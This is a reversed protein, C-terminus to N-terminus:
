DETGGLIEGEDGVQDLNVVLKKSIGAREMTVGYLRDTITMTRKNHTIVLFQTTEAFEQIVSAFRDVNAEDLPADVEDLICFPSPRYQFLGMVLALTTLAKQGGSLLSLSNLELHPPKAMIEIGAELIDVDEEVHIDARGGGFMKRFLVQFNERVKEIADALKDRSERNIKRILDMLQERSKGLDGEQDDYEGLREELEDLREISTMNVSGLNNIKRQLDEVDRALADWDTEEEGDVTTATGIESDSETQTGDEGSTDRAEIDLADPNVIDPFEPAEPEPVPETLDVHYEELIREQLATMQLTLSNEELRLESLKKELSTAESRASAASKRATQFATDTQVKAAELEEVRAKWTTEEELLAALQEKKQNQNAVSTARREELNEIRSVAGEMETRSMAVDRNARGFKHSVAEKREVSSAQDVRLNSLTAGMEEKRVKYKQIDEGRATVEQELSERLLEIEEVLGILQKERSALKELRDEVDQRETQNYRIEDEVVRLRKRQEQLKAEKENLKISKEYIQTRLTKLRDTSEELAGRQNAVRGTQEELSRRAVDLEAAINSLEAKRGLISRGGAAGGGFMEGAGTIVVGDLTVLIIDFHVHPRLQEAVERDKVILANGFCHNMVARLAEDCRVVDIAPGIIGPGTPLPRIRPRTAVDIPVFRATGKGADQLVEMGEWADFQTETIVLDPNGGLLAEIAVVHEADVDALNALTGVMGSLNGEAILWKVGSGYGDLQAELEDLIEKRSVLKDRLERAQDFERVLQELESKFRQERDSEVKVTSELSEIEASLQSHEASLSKCQMDLITFENQHNEGERVIDGHQRKLEEQKAESGTLENSYQQRKHLADMAQSKKEEIEREMNRVDEDYARLTVEGDAIATVIRDLERNVEEMEANLAEVAAEAERLQEAMRDRVEAARELEEALEGQRQEERAVADEYSEHRTEINMLAARAEGLNEEATRLRDQAQAAKAEEDKMRQELSAQHASLQDFEATAQAVQKEMTEYQHRSLRVKKDKLEDTLERYRRARGAQIKISRIERTIERKIDNLRTLDQTVRDLRSETERKRQRFKSIGAAEEFVKRLDKPGAQILEGIRGQEILSYGSRGIGTGYFLDRLDRLRCISKNILYESEGSRYLRRTITVEEFDIPLVKDENTVTLSVEAVGMASVSGAGKFIVDSLESGRLSKPSMDGLVWKIADVVNSKGCGNPGVLGTIGDGFEFGTKNAFSKFGHIELRKLRM